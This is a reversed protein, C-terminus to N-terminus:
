YAVYPGPGASTPQGDIATYVHRGFHFPLGWDFAMPLVGGGALNNFAFNGSGILSQANAVSLSVTAAVGNVGTNTAVLTQPSSPCYFGVGIGNAPCSTSGAYNFFYGNSGSDLFSQQYTAGNLTTQFNGAGDLTFVQASGLQNNSQTGIGFVLAGVATAGGNANLPPLQLQVGNNDTAFHLVPNTVQLAVPTIVGACTSGSCAYYLGATANTACAAGCDHAFPGVGLIGNVRLDQATTIPAGQKTCAQPIAPFAPDGILQFDTAPATEGAIKIDASRVSGWTFGDAFLACQTLTQGNISQAPLGLTVASALLRLGTSGTDVQVHDISQCQATGPVCVTVTVTPLNIVSAIGQDITMPAVNAAAAAIVTNTAPSGPAAPPAPNSSAHDDGGGGGGCGALVLATLVILINSVIRV